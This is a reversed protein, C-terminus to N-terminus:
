AASRNDANHILSYIAEATSSGRIKECVAGNRLLRSVTALAKLHDANARPPALLLFVLDVPQEDIADFPIPRELRAFLAHVRTLEELKGHPIAIGQGIGTSGLRERELLTALIVDEALGTIAAARRSLEQLVQKKNGARLQPIIADPQLTELVPDVPMCDQNAAKAPRFLKM